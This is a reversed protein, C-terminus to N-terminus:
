FMWCNLPKWGLSSNKVVIIFKRLFISNEYCHHIEKCHHIEIKIIFKWLLSSNEYTHHIKMLIIFKWWIKQWLSQDDDCHLIIKLSSNKDCHHTKMSKWCMWSNKDCHQQKIVIFIRKSQHINIGIIFKWWLSSNGVYQHINEGIFLKWWM